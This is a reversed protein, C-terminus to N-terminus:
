AASRDGGRSTRAGLALALHDALVLATRRRDRSIGVPEAPRCVLWGRRVAGHRLAIVLGDPPLVFGDGEHVYPADVRGNPELEPLEEVPLEVSFHCERLRLVGAVEDEVAAIVATIDAGDAVMRAVRYAGAVEDSGAKSAARAEDRSTAILGVAFGVTVLLVTAIVDDSSKIALSGYPRTLFFDFSVAAALGTSVGARSGGTFGAAIVVLVLVLAANAQDIEGRVAGLLGAVAIVLIGGLGASILEADTWKRTM